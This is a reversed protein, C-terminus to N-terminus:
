ALDAGCSSCNKQLLAPVKAVQQLAKECGCSAADRTQRWFKSPSIHMDWLVALVVILYAAVSSILKWERPVFYLSFLLLLFSVTCVTDWDKSFAM